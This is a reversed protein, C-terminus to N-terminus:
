DHLGQKYLERADDIYTRTYYHVKTPAPMGPFLIPIMRAARAKAHALFPSGVVIKAHRYPENWFIQVLTFDKAGIQDPVMPQPM